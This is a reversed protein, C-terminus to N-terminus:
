VEESLRYGELAWNCAAKEWGEKRPPFFYFTFLGFVFGLALDQKDSAPSLRSLLSGRHHPSRAAQLESGASGGRERRAEGILLCGTPSAPLCTGPRDCGGSLARAGGMGAQWGRGRRRRRGWGTVRGVRHSALSRNGCGLSLALVPPQLTQLLRGRGRGPPSTHWRSWSDVKRMRTRWLSHHGYPVPLLPAERTAQSVVQTNTIQCDYSIPM